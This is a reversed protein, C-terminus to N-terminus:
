QDTFYNHWGINFQHDEKRHRVKFLDFSEEM